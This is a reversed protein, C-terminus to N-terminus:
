FHLSYVLCYGNLTMVTQGKEDRLFFRFLKRCSRLYKGSPPNTECFAIVYSQVLWQKEIILCKIPKEIQEIEKIKTQKETGQM